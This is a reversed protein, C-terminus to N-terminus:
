GWRAGGRAVPPSRRRPSRSRSRRRPSRSRSLSRRRPSRSGRRRAPSRSRSGRRRAPSRSRRLPQSGKVPADGASKTRRSGRSRRRAPSASRARTVKRPAEIEQLRRHTRNAKACRKSDNLLAIMEDRVLNRLGAPLQFLFEASTWRAVQLLYDFSTSPKLTPQMQFKPAMERRWKWKKDEETHLAVVPIHLRAAWQEFQVTYCHGAREHRASDERINQSATSQLWGGKMHSKLYALLMPKWVQQRDYAQKSSVQKSM